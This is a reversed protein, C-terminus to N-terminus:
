GGGSNLEVLRADGGGVEPTTGPGADGRRETQAGHAKAADNFRLGAM